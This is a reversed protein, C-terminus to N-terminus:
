GIMEMFMSETIIPIGLETAAKNKSSSSAADNNILFDTKASIASALRGGEREIMAELDKRPLSLKGTIVFVRDKLREGGPATKEFTLHPLAADMIETNRANSFYDVISGAIEAGFGRLLALEEPKVARIRALDEGFSTCLIKANERGVNIIGLGYIFNRLPRRAADEIAKLLKAVSLEGFGPLTVLHDRHDKLLYLDAYSSLLGLEHFKSITQESLGEINMADRSAYHAITQVVRVACNPNECHLTLERAVARDGCVPCFRPPELNKHKDLNEAIQPIIMNAKYVSVRDGVRLSLAGFTSLNHLSAREVTTGEIDVPEFIAVPNILGTRSTNWEVTILRSTVVEDAWKFALSDRPFKATHGLSRSHAIDDFTLVLGDTAYDAGPLKARIDEMIHIFNGSHVMFFPAVDFGLSKLYALIESKKAFNHGPIDNDAAGYAMFRVNRKLTAQNDLQSLTGSCLNRPNKYKEGLHENIHEFDTFSIVAEGRIRLEGDFGIEKPLNVFNRANHTINAGIQGNGRTVAQKLRGNDYLIEVAVGDLKWSLVAGHGGLFDLMKAADKTKDLSMMPSKHTVKELASVVEHGVMRSPSNDATYGTQAELAALEAMLADFERDSMRESDGQYYAVSAANLIEVLAHIREKSM